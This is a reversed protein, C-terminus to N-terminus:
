RKRAIRRKIQRYSFIGFIMILILYVIVGFFISIFCAIGNSMTNNYVNSYIFVVIIMMIISAYAPKIISEYLNVKVNLYKKIFIMNLMSAMVYGFITGTIAGYINIGPIKVLLSTIAVKVICGLLLNVVPCFYKGIGQLIATSTQALVIFPICISLYKLILYGDGHGPFILSLIPGAMFFLGCFSPISIVMSVKIALQLKHLVEKKRNLIYAESIIPVLSACLAISLTLPVNVLVFAKGTLQGYLITAERYSFGATILKQPVIISDLLSMISSVASGISIPIAIYLLKSMIDYNKKYKVAKFEKRVSIYRNILYIGAVFAGAVAGFAAGGASYEIGRPLLIYALGVGVIVRGLQEFIQSMATPNMNQMGQFFGRFASVISILLPAFAIAILSYYSKRDWNLFVILKSSFILIFATFGGGIVLMLILAKRLVLVAGDKDGIANRESVMKSIAVPIGSAVAIFFMYMPYSMQYYGIGEDGILMILPWRFFIGLFRAFIGAAGLIVTGKILSQKKM